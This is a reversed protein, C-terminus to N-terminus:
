KEYYEVAIEKCDHVRACYQCVDYVKEPFQDKSTLRFGLRTFFEPIYTLAFVRYPLLKINQERLKQMAKKLLQSGYGATRYGEHVALARVEWLVPSFEIMCVTAVLKGHREGVWTRTLDGRIEKRDRPLLRKEESLPIILKFIEDIDKESASRMELIDKM